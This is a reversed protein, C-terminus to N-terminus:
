KTCKERLEDKRISKISNKIYDLYYNLYKGNDERCEIFKIAYMKRNM